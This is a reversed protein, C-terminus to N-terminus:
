DNQEKDHWIHKVSVTKNGLKSNRRRVAEVFEDDVGFKAITRLLDRFAPGIMDRSHVCTSLILVGDKFVRCGYIKGIRTVKTTYM